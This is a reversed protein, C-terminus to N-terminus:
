HPPDCFYQIQCTVFRMEFLDLASGDRRYAFARSGSPSFAVSSYAVSSATAFEFQHSADCEFTHPRFVACEGSSDIVGFLPRQFCSGGRNHHLSVVAHPPYYLETIGVRRNSSSSSSSHSSGTSISRNFTHGGDVGHRHADFHFQVLGTGSARFWVSGALPRLSPSLALLSL